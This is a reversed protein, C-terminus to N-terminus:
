EDWDDQFYNVYARLYAELPQNLRETQGDGQPHFATTPFHDIQLRDCLSKNFSNVFQTGRDTIFTKPLGHERFVRKRVLKATAVGDTRDPSAIPNIRLERLNLPRLSGV